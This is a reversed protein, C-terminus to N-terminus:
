SADERQRLAKRLRARARHAQVKVMSRSWGTLSAIEEVSREEVYMLMMVLRDRASLRELMADAAEAAEAPALAQEGAVPVDDWSELSRISRANRTRRDRWFRYGVRTAIRRFWHLLPARGAYGRLGFYAEVFVDQVLEEHTARDRTFRRMYRAIDQQYRRVLRGYAEGDGSLSAQLDWADEPGLVPEGVRDSM